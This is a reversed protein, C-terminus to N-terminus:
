YEEQFVRYITHSSGTRATVHLKKKCCYFSLHLHPIEYKSPTTWVVLEYVNLIGGSVGQMDYALTRHPSNCATEEQL